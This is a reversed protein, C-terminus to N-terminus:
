PLRWSFFRGLPRRHRDLRDDRKGGYLLTVDRILRDGNPSGALTEDVPTPLGWLERSRDYPSTWAPLDQGLVAASLAAVVAILYILIFLPYNLYLWVENRGLAMTAGVYAAFLLAAGFVVGVVCLTATVVAQQGRGSEWPSM